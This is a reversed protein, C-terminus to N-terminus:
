AAEVSELDDPTFFGKGQMTVRVARILHRGSEAKFFCGCARVPRAEEAFAPFEHLTTLVIRTERNRLFMQRVAEFGNLEPMGLDM